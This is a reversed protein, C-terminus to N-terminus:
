ESVLQVYEVKGALLFHNTSSGTSECIYVFVRSYYRTYILHVAAVQQPMRLITPVCESSATLLESGLHLSKSALTFSAKGRNQRKIRPACQVIKTTCSNLRETITMSNFSRVHPGQWIFFRGIFFNSVREMKWVVFYDALKKWVVCEFSCVRMSRYFITHLLLFNYTEVTSTM